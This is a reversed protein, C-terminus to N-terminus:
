AAALAERIVDPAQAIAKLFSIEAATPEIEHREWGEVVVAPIGYTGAFEEVTLGLQQRVFRVFALRRMPQGRGTPQNDPDSLAAAEIEVDSMPPDWQDPFGPIPGHEDHWVDGRLYRRGTTSIKSM